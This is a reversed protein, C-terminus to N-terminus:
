LSKVLNCCPLSCQLDMTNEVKYCGQSTTVVLFEMHTICYMVNNYTSVKDRSDVEAGKSM